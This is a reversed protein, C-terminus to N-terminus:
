FSNNSYNQDTTIKKLNMKGVTRIKKQLDIEITQQKLKLPCNAAAQESGLDSGSAGFPSRPRTKLLTPSAYRNSTSRDKTTRRRHDVKSTTDTTSCSPRRNAKRRRKAFAETSSSLCSSVTV